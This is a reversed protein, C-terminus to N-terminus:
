AQIKHVHWALICITVAPIAAPQEWQQAPLEMFLVLITVGHLLVTVGLNIWSSEVASQPTLATGLRIYVAGNALPKIVVM